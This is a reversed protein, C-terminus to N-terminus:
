GSVVKALDYMGLVRLCIVVEQGAGIPLNELVFVTKLGIQGNEIQQEAHTRLRHEVESGLYNTEIIQRIM